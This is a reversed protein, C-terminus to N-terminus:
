WLNGFPHTFRKAEAESWSTSVDTVHWPKTMTGSTIMMAVKFPWLFKNIAPSVQLENLRNLLNHNLQHRSMSCFSRFEIGIRNAQDNM